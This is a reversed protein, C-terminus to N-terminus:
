VISNERWPCKEDECHKAKWTNFQHQTKHRHCNGCLIDCKSIKNIMRDTSRNILEVVSLDKEEPNRHDFDLVNVNTEGCKLCPHTSLYDKLIKTKVERQKANRELHVKLANEDKAFLDQKWQRDYERKCDICWSRYTTPTKKRFSSINKETKCKSCTKVMKLKM